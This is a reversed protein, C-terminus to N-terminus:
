ERHIASSLQASEVMKTRIQQYSLVIREILRWADRDGETAEFYDSLSKLRPFLGDLYLALDM